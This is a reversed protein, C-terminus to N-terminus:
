AMGGGGRRRKNKINKTQRIAGAEGYIENGDPCGILAKHCMKM